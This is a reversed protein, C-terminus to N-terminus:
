VYVAWDQHQISALCIVYLSTMIFYRECPLLAIARPRNLNEVVIHKTNNGDYDVKSIRKNGVHTWYVQQYVWDVAIGAIYRIGLVM